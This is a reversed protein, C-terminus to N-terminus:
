PVDFIRICGRYLVLLHWHALNARNQFPIWNSSYIYLLYKCDV